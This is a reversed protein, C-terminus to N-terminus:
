LSLPWPAAIMLAMLAAGLLAMNKYFNITNMMKMNPDTDKWFAHMLFSAPALFLVLAAIAWQVYIGLIIGLGGILLLFGTFLVWFKAPKVGKSATYGTLMDVQTFHNFASKVFFGGFLVRGLLFLFSTIAM